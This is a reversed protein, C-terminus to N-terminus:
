WIRAGTLCSLAVPLAAADYGRRPPLGFDLDLSWLGLGFLSSLSIGFSFVCRPAAFRNLFVAEPLNLLAFAKLLWMRVFFLGPRFRPSAFDVVTDRASMFPM